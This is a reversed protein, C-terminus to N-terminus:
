FETDDIWKGHILSWIRSFANVSSDDVTFTFAFQKEYQLPAAALSVDDPSVGDHLTFRLQLCQGGEAEAAACASRKADGPWQVSGAFGVDYLSKEPYDPRAAFRVDLRADFPLGTRVSREWPLAAIPETQSTGDAATYVAELAFLSPLDAGGEFRYTVENKIDGPNGPERYLRFFDGGLLAPCLLWRFLQAMKM